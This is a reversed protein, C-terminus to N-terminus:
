LISSVGYEINLNFSLSTVRQFLPYQDLWLMARGETYIFTDCRRLMGKTWGGFHPFHRFIEMKLSKCVIIEVIIKSFYFNLWLILWFDKKFIIIEIWTSQELLRSSKCRSTWGTAQGSFAKMIKTAGKKWYQTIFSESFNIDDILKPKCSSSNYFFKILRVSPSSNWLNWNVKIKAKIQYFEM